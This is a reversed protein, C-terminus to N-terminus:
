SCDNVQAAQMLLLAFIAWLNDYLGDFGNQEYKFQYIQTCQMIFVCFSTCCCSPTPSVPQLALCAWVGHQLLVTQLHVDLSWSLFLM